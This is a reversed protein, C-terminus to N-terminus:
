VVRWRGAEEKYQINLNGLRPFERNIFILCLYDTKYLDLQQMTNESPDGIRFNGDKIGNVSYLVVKDRDQGNKWYDCDDIEAFINILNDSELTIDIVSDQAKEVELIEFQNSILINQNQMINIRPENMENITLGTYTIVGLYLFVSFMLVAFLVTIIKTHGTTPSPINNLLNKLSQKKPM